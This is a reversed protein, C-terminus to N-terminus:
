IGWRKPVRAFILDAQLSEMADTINLEGKLGRLLDELSLKITEVLSNMQECEQIAVIDFPTYDKMDKRARINHMDLIKLSSNNLYTNIKDEMRTEKSSSSSSGSLMLITEFIFNSTNTLYGIEALNNIKIM